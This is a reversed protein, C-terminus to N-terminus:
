YGRAPDFRNPMPTGDRLARLNRFFIDLSNPNYTVPDDASIHPTMVLNRTAWLRHGPPVPEPVFVDLIAGGLRGDDLADCLADQEILAGRGVNVVGAGAPLLAIRSRDLLGRTADTLPTALVLFEAGPLEADLDAVAVVRVCDPHPEARTRVGVVQMGFRAAQGAVAGGLSGLGVVVATREALVSSHFPAWRGERQAAAFGPMGAALMLLAMIGYEGARASHAGANNLLVCDEPLWGFPELGDLGANACFILRLHPAAAPFLAKVVGKHSVLAEATRMAQAFEDQTTGFTVEHGGSVDPARACAADWQARTFPFTGPTSQTQIHIHM